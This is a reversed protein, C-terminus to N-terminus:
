PLDNVVEEGTVTAFDKYVELDIADTVIQVSGDVFAFQTIGPHFSGMPLYNFHTDFRRVCVNPPYELIKFAYPADSHGSLYWPRVSYGTLEDTYNGFQCDRHVFEGILFSNSQGDTIQSLKRPIGVVPRSFINLIEQKVTFAGNNPIPGFGSPILKEGDNRVAGGVGSYTCAAGLQYEYNTPMSTTVRADPWDPCIYTAVVIDRARDDFYAPRPSDLYYDFNVTDYTDQEEMFKLLTTFLGEKVFSANNRVHEMTRGYGVPLTKGKAAAYNQTALGMQKLNNVCQSRRAAERAAQVAPLLLAVLIGIIAIVVLLEVLTFARSSHPINRDPWTMEKERVLGGSRAAALALSGFEAPSVNGARQL